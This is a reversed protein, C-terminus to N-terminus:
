NQDAPENNHYDGYHESEAHSELISELITLAHKLGAFYGVPFLNLGKGENVLCWHEYDYIRNKLAEIAIVLEETTFPCDFALIHKSKPM